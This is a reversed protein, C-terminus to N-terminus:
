TLLLLAAEDILDISLEDGTDQIIKKVLTVLHELLRGNNKSLQLFNDAFKMAEPYNLALIARVDGRQLLEINKQIGVRSYLQELEKRPGRLRDLLRKRGCLLVGIGTFDQIRRIVELCAVTNNEGEDIILLRHTDKLKDIIEDFLVINPVLKTAANKYNVLPIKLETAISQILSKQTVIPTVEILITTPYRRKFEQVAITKGCGAMGTVVGIKGETLAYTAIKFIDQAATTMAFKLHGRSVRTLANNENDLYNEILAAIEANNGSYKDNRFLSITGLSVGANTAITRNTVAPNEKVYENLRSRIENIRLDSLPQQNM